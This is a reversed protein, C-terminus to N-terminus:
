QSDAFSVLEGRPSLLDGLNPTPSRKDPGPVLEWAHETSRHALPQPAVDPAAVVTKWTFFGHIELHLGVGPPM